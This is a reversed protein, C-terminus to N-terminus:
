FISQIYIDNEFITEQEMPQRKNINEKEKRRRKKDKQRKLAADVAHPPEWALPRILAAAALRHWLWLLTLDSGCRHGVDYSM